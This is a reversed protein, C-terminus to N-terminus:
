LGGESPTQESGAAAQRMQFRALAIISLWFKFKSVRASRAVGMWFAGVLLAAGLWKIALVLRGLEGGATEPTIGVILLLALALDRYNRFFENRAGTHGAYREAQAELELAARELDADTPRLDLLQEACGREYDLRSRLNEDALADEARLAMVKRAALFVVSGLCLCVFAGAYGLYLARTIAHGAGLSEAILAFTVAMGLLISGVLHVARLDAGKLTMQEAAPIQRESRMARLLSIIAVVQQDVSM